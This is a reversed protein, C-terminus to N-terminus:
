YSRKITLTRFIKKLPNHFVRYYMLILGTISAFLGFATFWFLLSNDVESGEYDMVHFRFMWDFIRWFQHRKTVLKGTQASIYLSPAGFDSFNVRWAPLVRKSLEFPPNATILEIHTVSGNGTYYHDAAHIANQENLPSLLHGNSANVLYQEGNMSFRYVTKDIFSGVSLNTAEPYQQTLSKLSYNITSTNVKTQHNMVMSDGHIYDIDFFVMYTGTVSWIVFQVGLFLMLWKHYKRSAKAASM